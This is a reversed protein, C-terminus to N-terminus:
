TERETLTLKDHSNLFPESMFHVCIPEVAVGLPCGQNIIIFVSVFIQLLILQFM